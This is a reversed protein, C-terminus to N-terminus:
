QFNCGKPYNIMENSYNENWTGLIMRSGSEPELLPKANMLKAEKSADSMAMSAMFPCNRQLRYLNYLNLVPNSYINWSVVIFSLFNFDVKHPM